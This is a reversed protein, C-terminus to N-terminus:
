PPPGAGVVRDPRSALRAVAVAVVAEARRDFTHARLVISRGHEALRRREEPAAQYRDILSLLEAQDRYTPVAGDFEAAIEDLHDSIVFAGSALADYIRNSIFGEARMDPWHDNLVVDAAAYYAAVDSNPIAEGKLFRPELLAESWGRGYVALDRDTGLLHEVIPRRVNRSNAVFLLEHHPAAAGPHMREPDTAQHLSQVPTAAVRAMREAFRDSAVFAADYRDYLERSALDPHSIQWLLNVQAPRTPAESLGFIHLAVDDRAAVSGQWAPLLHVRSPHGTRELARQLARAFHYDGWSEAEEARPIGIRIGFRPATAWGILADRVFAARLAYTHRETVIARLEAALARSGVPDALLRGVVDVLSAADTWTPFRPGFLQQVGAAGNSVVLSGAALADFVRSNVSAYPATPSAADDVVIRAAAYAAPVEAYPLNGRHVDALATHRDWGRGFLEVHFGARALAPLAEVVARDEGWDNGVFLVDCSRETEPEAPHFRDPNTAIPMVSAVKASRARVLDAIPQSSAFVLDFDDFWPHELWREAWNRLWALTLVHSPLRRIDFGDILVVVADLTPDPEYWWEMRRELYSVTWGLATLAEGLEHATYWDGYGAAPDDATVTLAVHFPEPAWRTGGHLADLLAERFLRPGWRDLYHERNGQVRRSWVAPDAAKRSASEHHWLAARGDFVLRGGAAQLKLCLDVDELGYEYGIDFGGVAEFADRRVLLCAATLAPVARVDTMGAARPDGGAGLPRPSPVGGQRDFVVGAHQVTLDPYRVGGRPHGRHSPYILRAGVAVADEAELTAVLHGLWDPTVPEVDNNLFLILEGRAAAVGQGNAESYSRNDPNRIVQLDFAHSQRAVADASGDTSGNDVLVLEFDTYTTRDLGALCRALHAKGNRNLVVITVLRGRRASPAPLDAAIARALDREEAATARQRRGQRAEDLDARLGASRKSLAAAVTGGAVIARRVRNSVGVALRVSRRGRLRGLERSLRELERGQDKSASRADRLEASRRALEAELRAIRAELRAEVHSSPQDDPPGAGPDDSPREIMDPM